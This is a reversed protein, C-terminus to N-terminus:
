AQAGKRSASADPQHKPCPGDDGDTPMECVSCLQGYGWVWVDPADQTESM